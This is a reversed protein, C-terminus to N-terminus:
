SGFIRSLEVVMMGPPCGKWNDVWCVIVDCGNPDHKHQAFTRSEKEFEIRVDQWRGPLVEMKARCDPFPAQVSEIIFGLKRAVMAFLMSVGIENVPAHTLRAEHMPPGLLPRDPLVRRLFGGGLVISAVLMPLMSGTVCRKAWLPRPLGAVAREPAGMRMAGKGAAIMFRRLWRLTSQKVREPKTRIMEVVDKWEGKLEGRAEAELFAQPVLSWKRFREVARRSPHKGEGDYEPQTPMRKLRRALEGWDELLQVNSIVREPGSKVRELGAARLAAGHTGFRRAVAGRTIGNLAELEQAKPTRGLEERLKHIAAVIEERTISTRVGRM